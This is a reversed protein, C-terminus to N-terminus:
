RPNPHWKESVEVADNVLKTMARRAVNAEDVTRFTLTILFREGVSFAFGAADPEARIPAEIIRSVKM